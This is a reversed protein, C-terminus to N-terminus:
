PPAFRQNWHAPPGAPVAVHIFAHKTEQHCANCTDVLTEYKTRFQATDQAAIAQKVGAVAPPLLTTLLRSTEIGEDVVHAAAIADATEAIEDHYFGALEWNGTTGAYWLKDAYRQLYGMMEGLPFSQTAAPPAIRVELATVRRWLFLNGALSAALLLGVVITKM